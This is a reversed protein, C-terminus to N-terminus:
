GKNPISVRIETGKGPSSKIVFKGDLSEARELMGRIGIGQMEPQNLTKKIDFGKGDDCINLKINGKQSYLRVKVKKANAHILTNNLAEQAIRYLAIAVNDNIRKEGIDMSFDIKIKAKKTINSFYTRLVDPLGIIDLEPPRLDITISKLIRIQQKVTNKIQHLSELADRLNNNKIEHEIIDLRSTLAVAMSGIEDHLNNALIRKEEERVSLIKRSFQKLNRESIKLLRASRKLEEEMRKRETIDLFIGFTGIFQRKDDFRPTATVLLHRREGDLRKFKIEYTSKKGARRAETQSRILVFTEADVFERLNRGVLEGHPVGFIKHAAPNAFTFREKVDVIGIGEGQNEILTRYREESKQLKEEMRKRETIDEGSTLTGVIQGNSNRIVTNHFLILRKEGSKTLLPNEYYEVPKIDGAMLKRFVDRVESRIREPVLTDFWNRGILEDENYGLIEHGKKNILTINEEANVVALMVRAVNLYEEAREKEGKREEEILKRETIDRVIGRTGMVENGEKIVTSSYEVFHPQGKKDLLVTEATIEGTKLLNSFDALTRKQLEKPILVIFHKGILEKSRYGLNTEVAPSAFTINGKDDLTYIIDKEKEILDRYREELRKRETIDAAIMNVASVKGGHIVPGIHIEYWATNPGQPGAGLIEYSVPKGTRFVKEISNRMIYHQEPPVYDYVSTGITQEPTYEGITRNLFHITGNRAVTLIINPANETLSRWKAESEKLAQEVKKQETVIKELYAVRQRMEALEKILQEKTMNKDKM